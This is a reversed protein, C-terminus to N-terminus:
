CRGAAPPRPRRPRRRVDPPQCPRDRARRMAGMDAGGSSSESTTSRWRGSRHHSVATTPVPTTEPTTPAVSAPPATTAPAAPAVTTTPGAIVESPTFGVRVVNVSNVSGVGRHRVTIATSEAIDVGACRVGRNPPQTNGATWCALVMDPVNTQLITGRTREERAEISFDELKQINAKAARGKEIERDLEDITTETKEIQKLQEKYVYVHMLVFAIIGVVLGVSLAVYWPKENLDLAM